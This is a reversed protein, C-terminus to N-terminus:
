RALAGSRPARSRSIRATLAKATERVSILFLQALPSLTRGKVTLIAVPLQWRPMEIPLTTLLRREAGFRMVSGPVITLFNGTALLGNRLPLSLGLVRAQPVSLGLKGFAAVVPSGEMVEPPAFIWADSALQALTVKRRGLWRNGPGAAVFVDEYFLTEADIDPEPEPRLMRAIAFEVKRERLDRLQLSDGDGLTMRFSLAPYNRSLRDIVAPVLGAAMYESCGISLDGTGPRALWSVEKLGHRLEDLAAVSRRLLAQGVATPEIGSRRRDLLRVGLTRELDSITKTVVPRTISLRDAARAMSGAEAVVLLMQLERLKLRRLLHDPDPAAL